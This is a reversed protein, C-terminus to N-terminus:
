QRFGSQTLAPSLITSVAIMTPCASSRRPSKKGLEMFFKALLSNGALRERYRADFFKEGIIGKGDVFSYGPRAFGL